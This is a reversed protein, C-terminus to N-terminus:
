VNSHLILESETWATGNYLAEVLGGNRQFYCKNMDTASSLPEDPNTGAGATVCALNTPFDAGDFVKDTQPGGWGSSNTNSGYMIKGDAAQYILYTNVLASTDDRATSFAAM